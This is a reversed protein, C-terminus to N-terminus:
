NLRIWASSTTFVQFIYWYHEVQCRVCADTIQEYIADTEKAEFLYEMAIEENDPTLSKLNEQSGLRLSYYTVEDKTVVTWFRPSKFRRALFLCLSFAVLQKNISPSPGTCLYAKLVFMGLSKASESLKTVASFIVYFDYILVTVLRYDLLYLISDEASILNSVSAKIGSSKLFLIPRPYRIHEIKTAIMICAICFIDRKQPEIDLLVRSKQLLDIALFWSREKLKLGVVSKAMLNYSMMRLEFQIERHGKELQSSLSSISHSLQNMTQMIPMTHCGLRFQNLSLVKDNFCESFKRQSIFVSSNNECQVSCVTSKNNKKFTNAQFLNEKESTSINILSNGTLSLKSLSSVTTSHLDSNKDPTDRTRNFGNKKELFPRSSIDPPCHSLKLPNKEAEAQSKNLFDMLNSYDSAALQAKPVHRSAMVLSPQSPQYKCQRNAMKKEISTEKHTRQYERSSKEEINNPEQIKELVQSLSPNPLTHESPLEQQSAQSPLQDLTTVNPQPVQLVSSQDKSKSLILSQFWSFM